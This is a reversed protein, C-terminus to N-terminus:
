VQFGAAELQAVYVKLELYSMSTVPKQIRIFDDIEEKTDLATWVFPVTQVKGDPSLERFAGESLEWGVPTWHARRADLRDVLRFERDVELITVGYMDNTGPHLLEVRFFRSDSRRVWLRPRPKPHRPAKGRIKVNAAENGRDKM